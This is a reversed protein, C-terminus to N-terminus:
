SQEEIVEVPHATGPKGYRELWRSKIEDAEAETLKATPVPRWDEVLELLLAASEPDYGGVRYLVQDAINICDAGQMTAGWGHDALVTLAMRARAPATDVILGRGLQRSLQVDGIGPHDTGQLAIRLDNAISHCVASIPLEQADSNEWLRAELRRVCALPEAPEEDRPPGPCAAAHDDLNPGTPSNHAKAIYRLVTNIASRTATDVTRGVQVPGETADLHRAALITMESPADIAIRKRPRDPVASM